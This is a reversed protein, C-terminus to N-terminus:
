TRELRRAGPNIVTLFSEFSRCVSVNWGNNKMAHLCSLQSDSLRGACNKLEVAHPVGAISFLLDPTGQKERAKPSLHLFWVGRRTLDLECLRQLDREVADTAKCGSLDEFEAGKSANQGEQAPTQRATADVPRSDAGVRDQAGDPTHLRRLDAEFCRPCVSGAHYHGAACTRYGDIRPATM